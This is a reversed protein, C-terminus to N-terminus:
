WPLVHGQYDLYAVGPAGLRSEIVDALGRVSTAVDLTADPGGMDTRVWGPALALVAVEPTDQRAAFSRLSTNLAAKSARYVEWGGTENNTVSGLGSSMAGIVGRPKVLASFAEIVRMPSLTNTVMVRMFEETSVGGMSTTPSGIGANVFLVDLLRSGLRDRLADVEEAVNIDVTEIELRGNAQRENLRHLQTPHQQDRVTAVVNWGRRLHEDALGLGLGRSAGVILISKAQSEM